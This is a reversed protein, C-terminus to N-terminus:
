KRRDNKDLLQQIATTNYEIVVRLQSNQQKLIEMKESQCSDIKAEMREMRANAWWAFALLLTIPFGQKMIFQFVNQWMELTNQTM